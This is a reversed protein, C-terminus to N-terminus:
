MLKARIRIFNNVDDRTEAEFKIRINTGPFNSSFCSFRRSRTLEAADAINFCTLDTNTSTCNRVARSMLKEESVYKEHTKGFNLFIHKIPKVRM